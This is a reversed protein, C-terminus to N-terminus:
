KSAELRGLIKHVEDRYYVIKQSCWIRLNNKKIIVNINTQKKRETQKSARIINPGIKLRSQLASFTLWLRFVNVPNFVCRVLCTCM